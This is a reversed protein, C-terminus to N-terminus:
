RVIVKMFHEVIQPYDRANQEHWKQFEQYRLRNKSFYDLALQNADNFFEAETVTVALKVFASVLDDITATEPLAPANSQNGPVIIDYM